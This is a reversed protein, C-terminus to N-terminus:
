KLKYWNGKFSWFDNLAMSEANAGGFLTVLGNRQVFFAPKGSRAPGQNDLLKWREDKFQWTDGLYKDTYGGFMLISQTKPDFVAAHHDRGTPGIINLKQWKNNKLLWTENSVKKVNNTRSFGGFVVIANEVPDYTMTHQLLSPAPSKIEKWEKGNFVWTDSLSNRDTGSGGFLVLVKGSPDYALRHSQRAPPGNVNIQTWKQGDFTWTDNLFAETGRGGFLYILRKDPDYAMAHGSRAEPGHISSAQSWKGDWIWTDDLRKRDAYGGFLVAKGLHDMYVMVPQNRPVPTSNQAHIQGYWLCTIFLVAKFPWKM